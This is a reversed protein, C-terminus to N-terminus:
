RLFDCLGAAICMGPPIAQRTQIEQKIKRTFSKLQVICQATSSSSTTSSSTPNVVMHHCLDPINFLVCPPYIYLACVHQAYEICSRCSIAGSGASQPAASPYSLIAFTLLIPLRCM